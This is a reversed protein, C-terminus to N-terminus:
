EIRLNRMKKWLTVRSFGLIKAAEQRSGGSNRLADEIKQREAQQDLTLPKIPKPPTLAPRPQRIELPLNPLSIRGGEALVCAQEIANRLQRVNGPWPFHVIRQLADRSIGVVPKNQTKSFEEIFHETLIPIDERRERLPPLVIEFVRIRYYFDERMGGSAVLQKLDKNTAAVLRVDVPVTQEEGVRRIKKEELTRLLKVQLAPSMDGIEDLFLTGGTSAQFIGIKDRVAGTFAGRVHGFLESELLPEPFASCNIALFPKNKRASLSHIAGAALEKGTGSEGLVLVPVDTEAALRIRRFTEQLLASKGIMGQFSRRTKVQEELFGIKEKAEFLSLIDRVRREAIELRIELVKLDVPKVIYDDAGADLMASLDEPKNRATLALITCLDGQPAQRVLECLKLGDMSGSLGWDLVILPYGNKQFAEWASEGDPCATVEHGRSRLLQELLGRMEPDDEVVLSRIPSPSM